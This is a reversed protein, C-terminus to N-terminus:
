GNNGSGPSRRNKWKRISLGAGTKGPYKGRYLFFLSLLMILLQSVPVSVWTGGIGLREPLILLLVLLFVPEAYILLYAMKDKGTAYFASVTIRSFSAFLYGILFVPLIAGVSAVTQDSAGFLVAAQNRVLYLLVMCFLATVASFQYAIRKVRGTKAGDGEGYYLSMLPQCGDSIGQLLLLVVCSIYSVAAYSTVAAEGGYLVASKNVLILTINPVFALGFPSPAILLVRKALGWFGKGLRSRLSNRRALLFCLCVAFTVAQGIVTALAAGAMGYPFRWVLLYDLLINTLFGAVMAVMALVAGGMNRLFPVLGTSLVQFFAGYIIFRIYALALPYIEGVAGFMRLVAPASIALGGMLLLSVGALLLSTVKFYRNKEETKKAGECISYLIAGGMGIGSGVAQILATLPYAINIAALGFDGIKNGIFFGDVIAYIGSLAFALMSPIVCRFFNKRIEM